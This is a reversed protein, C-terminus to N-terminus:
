LCWGLADGLARVGRGEAFELAIKLTEREREKRGQMGYARALYYWAEPVDWGRGKTLHGLMGAALDVDPSSMSSSSTTLYSHMSSRTNEAATHHQQSSSLSSSSHFKATVEPDLYLRSLHVTAAADDPSIFRAKQLTDVAHQYLRLSIYYLGLQEDTTLMTSADFISPLHRGSGM